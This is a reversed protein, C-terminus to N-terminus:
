LISAPFYDAPMSTLILRFNPHIEDPEEQLQNCINELKPMWSKFLHCNQLLIWDGDRKGEAIRREADREQGQGLSKQQLKQKMKKAYGLIQENPDAGQSLVFIIPTVKDAANFLMEMSTLPSVSYLRGLDRVVYEKLSYLLQQPKFLKILLLREFIPLPQNQQDLTLAEPLQDLLSASEEPDTELYAKIAQRHDIIRQILGSFQKKLKIEMFYALDWQSKSLVEHIIEYDRYDLQGSRDFVGQGRLLLNYSSDDISGSNKRISTCIM